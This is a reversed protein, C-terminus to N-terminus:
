IISIIIYNSLNYYEVISCFEKQVVHKDYMDLGGDEIVVEFIRELIVAKEEVSISGEFQSFLERINWKITTEQIIAIIEM